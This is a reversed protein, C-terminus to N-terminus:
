KPLFADSSLNYGALRESGKSEVFLFTETAEGGHFRSKYTASTVNGSLKFNVRWAALRGSQYPGLKAGAVALIRVLRRDNEVGRM